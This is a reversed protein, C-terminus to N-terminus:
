TVLVRLQRGAAEEDQGGHGAESLAEPIRDAVEGALYGVQGSAAAALDGARGHLYVGLLAADLPSAGQAALAAIVGTLVDGMGGAAMGPNGTTNFYVEGAPTAVVTHAGKLVTIVGYKQSFQRALESRKEQVESATLGLLRGLEGPHPTIIVESKCELLVSLSEALANLGDADIVMPVTVQPLLHRVLRATGPSRSIGPGLAVVKKSPLHELIVELAEEGPAGRGTEPLPLVMAEPVGDLSPPAQSEPLAATVLGAGARLAGRCTLVAAGVFGRSGAVALVHGHTGKHSDRRRPRLKSAALLPTLLYHSAAVKEVLRSPFGIDALFVTGCRLAAPFLFLGPKPLGFTVTAAAEVAAGSVTGSDASLGSPLDVSLVPVGLGNILSVAEGYLGRVPPSFGTGLLADVVLSSGHAARRLGETDLSGTVATVRVGARTAADLNIRPDGRLDQFSCLLFVAPRAGMRLLHRAAVLGDGGNNGKGCFLSIKRGALPGIMGAAAEAVARGANEMLTLSPIGFQDTAQRDMASMEAPTLVKM